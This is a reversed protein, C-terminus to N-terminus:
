IYFYIHKYLKSYVSRANWKNLHQSKCKRLYMVGRLCLVYISRVYSTWFVELVDELRRIYTWSVDQSSMIVVTIAHKSVWGLNKELFRKIKLFLFYIKYIKSSYILYKSIDKLDFYFRENKKLRLLELEFKRNQHKVRAHSEM